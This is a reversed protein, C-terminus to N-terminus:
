NALPTWGFRDVAWIGVTGERLLVVIDGVSTSRTPGVLSPTKEHWGCDISNTAEFAMELWYDHGPTGPHKEGPTFDLKAVLRYNAPTFPRTEFYHRGEADPLGHYVYGKSPKKSKM